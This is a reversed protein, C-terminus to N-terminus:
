IDTPTIHQFRDFLHLYIKKPQQSTYVTYMHCKKELRYIPKLSEIIYTPEYHVEFRECKEQCSDCVHDESFYTVNDRIDPFKLM